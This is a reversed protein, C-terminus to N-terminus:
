PATELTKKKKLIQTIRCIMMQHTANRVVGVCEKLVWTRIYTTMSSNSDGIQQKPSFIKWKTNIRLDMKLLIYKFDTSFGNGKTTQDELPFSCEVGIGNNWLPPNSKYVSLQVM